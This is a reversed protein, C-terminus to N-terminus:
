ADVHFATSALVKWKYNVFMDLDATCDAAGGTWTPSTLTFTRDGLGGAFYANWGQAVLTGNQFCQLNVFPSTTATTSVDFTIVDGFRAASLPAALATAGASSVITPGNISSAAKSPGAAAAVGAFALVGLLSALLAARQFM